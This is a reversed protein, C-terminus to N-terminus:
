NKSQNKIEKKIQYQLEKIELLEEPYGLKRYFYERKLMRYKDTNHQKQRSFKVKEPNKQQWRQVLFKVRERNKQQWQQHYTKNKEPWDTRYNEQYNKQYNKNKELWNAQYTKVHEQNERKYNKQICKKSCFRTNKQKAEFELECCECKIIRSM